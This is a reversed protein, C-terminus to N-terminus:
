SSAFSDSFDRQGEGQPVAKKGKKKFNMKM